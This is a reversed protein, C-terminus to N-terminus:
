LTTVAAFVDLYRKAVTEATLGLSVLRERPAAARDSISLAQEIGAAVDDPTAGVCFCTPTNRFLRAVDGVDTSVVPTNCAMAEKVVMPSAEFLSTQVVVDAANMYLVMQERVISGGTVLHIPTTLKTRAADFLPWGKEPREPSAPFFVICVDDPLGLSRRADRQDIPRFDEAAAPAIVSYPGDFGAVRPLREEVSVVADSLQMALRKPAKLYVLRRLPHREARRAAPSAHVEGEHVTFVLPTKRRALRRALVTQLVSYTHHAHIVDYSCERLTRALQPVDSLYRTRGEKANTFFVDVSTGYRRLADVHEHVFAGLHPQGACPYMNTVILVRM